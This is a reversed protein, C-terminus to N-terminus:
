RIQFAAFSEEFGGIEIYGTHDYVWFLNQETAPVLYVFRCHFTGGPQLGVSWNTSDCERKDFEDLIFDQSNFQLQAEVGPNIGYQIESSINKVTFEVYWYEFNETDSEAPKKYSANNLTIELGFLTSTEGILRVDEPNILVAHAGDEPAMSNDNAALLTALAREWRATESSLVLTICAYALLILGVCGVCFRSVAKAKQPIKDLL